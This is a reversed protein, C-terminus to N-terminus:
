TDNAELRLVLMGDEESVHDVRYRKGDVRMRQGEEPVYGLEAREVCLTVQSLFVGDMHSYPQGQTYPMQISSDVLAPLLLGDIDHEDAFENLNLFVTMDAKIHDKFNM